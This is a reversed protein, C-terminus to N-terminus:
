ASSPANRTIDRVSLSLQWLKDLVSCSARSQPRASPTVKAGSLYSSNYKERCLASWSGLRVGKIKTPGTVIKSFM